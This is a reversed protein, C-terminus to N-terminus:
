IKKTTFISPQGVKNFALLAWSTLAKLLLPERDDSNPLFEGLSKMKM